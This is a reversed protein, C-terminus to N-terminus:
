VSPMIRMIPFKLLNMSIHLFYFRPFLFAPWQSRRIMRRQESMSMEAQKMCFCIPTLSLIFGFFVLIKLFSWTEGEEWPFMLWIFPFILVFDILVYSAIFILMYTNTSMWKVKCAMRKTVWKASHWNILLLPIYLFIFFSSVFEWTGTGQMSAILSEM